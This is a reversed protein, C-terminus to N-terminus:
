YKLNHIKTMKNKNKFKGHKPNGIKMVKLKVKMWSTSMKFLLCNLFFNTECGITIYKEENGIEHNILNTAVFDSTVIKEREVNKSCDKVIPSPAWWMSNSPHEEYCPHIHRNKKLGKKKDCLAMLNM